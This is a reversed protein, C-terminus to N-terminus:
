CNFVDILGFHHCLIIMLNCILLVVQRTTIATPKSNGNNSVTQTFSGYAAPVFRDVAAADHTLFFTPQAPFKSKGVSV